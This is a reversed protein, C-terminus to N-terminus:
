RLQTFAENHNTALKAFCTKGLEGIAMRYIKRWVKLLFASTLLAKKCGCDLGLVTAHIKISLGSVGGRGKMGIEANM